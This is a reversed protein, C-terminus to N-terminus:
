FESATYAPKPFIIFRYDPLTISSNTALSIKTFDVLTQLAM